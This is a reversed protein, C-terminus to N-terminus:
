DNLYEARILISGSYDGEPLSKDLSDIRGGIKVVKDNNETVTFDHLNELSTPSVTVNFSNGKNNSLAVKLGKEISQYETNLSDKWLLRVRGNGSVKLEGTDKASFNKGGKFIDGFNLHQTVEVKLPILIKASVRVLAEESYTKSFFISLLTLLLIQRM